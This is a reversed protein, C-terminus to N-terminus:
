HGGWEGVPASEDVPPKRVFFALVIAGMSLGGGFMFALHIGSALAPV